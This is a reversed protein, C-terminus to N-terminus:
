NGNELKLKVPAIGALACAAELAHVANCTRLSDPLDGRAGESITRDHRDVARRFLIGASLVVDKGEVRFRVEGCVRRDLAAPPQLIRPGTASGPLALRRVVPLEPQM